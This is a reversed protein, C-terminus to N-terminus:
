RELSHFDLHELSKLTSVLDLLFEEQALKFTEWILDFIETDELQLSKELYNEEYKGENNIKWGFVLTIFLEADTKSLKNFNKLTDM